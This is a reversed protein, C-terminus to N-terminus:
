SIQQTSIRMRDEDTWLRCTYTFLSTGNTGGDFHTYSVHVPIWVSIIDVEVIQGDRIVEITQEKISGGFNDVQISKMIVPTTNFEESIIDLAPYRDNENHKIRITPFGRRILANNITEAIENQIEEPIQITDSM